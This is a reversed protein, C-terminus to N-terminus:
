LIEKRKVYNLCNNAQTYNTVGMRLCIVNLDVMGIRQTCTHCTAKRLRMGIASKVRNLFTEIM